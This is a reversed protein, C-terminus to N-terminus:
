EFVSKEKGSAFTKAGFENYREPNGETPSFRGFLKKPSREYGRLETAFTRPNGYVTPLM